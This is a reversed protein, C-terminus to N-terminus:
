LVEGPRAVLGLSVFRDEMEMLTTAVHQMNRYHLQHDDADALLTADSPKVTEVELKNGVHIYLIAGVPRMAGGLKYREPRTWGGVTDVKAGSGLIDQGVNLWHTHGVVFRRIIDDGHRDLLKSQVIYSELARLLAYSNAYYSSGGFGHELGVLFRRVGDPAVNVTARQGAYVVRHGLKGLVDCWQATLDLDTVNRDHNGDVAVGFMEDVSAVRAVAAIVDAYVSASYVAQPSTNPITVAYAQGRFVGAGTVNDGPFLWKVRTPRVEEVRKAIRQGVEQWSRLLFEREGHQTDGVAICVQPATEDGGLDIADRESVEGVDEAAVPAQVTTTGGPRPPSAAKGHEDRTRFPRARNRAQDASLGHSAGIEEWTGEGAEYARALQQGMDM